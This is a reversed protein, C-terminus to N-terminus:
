TFTLITKVTKFFFFVSKGDPHLENILPRSLPIELKLVVGKFIDINLIMKMVM